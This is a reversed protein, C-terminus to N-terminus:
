MYKEFLKKCLFMMQLPTLLSYSKTVEVKVKTYPKLIYLFTLVQSFLQKKKTKTKKQLDTMVGAFTRAALCLNEGSFANKNIGFM